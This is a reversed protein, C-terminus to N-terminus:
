YIVFVKILLITIQLLFRVYIDSISLVCPFVSAELATVSLCVCVATVCMFYLIYTKQRNYVPCKYSMIPPLKWYLTIIYIMVSLLLEDVYLCPNQHLCAMNLSGFYIYHSPPMPWGFLWQLGWKHHSYVHIYTCLVDCVFVVCCVNLVGCAYLSM